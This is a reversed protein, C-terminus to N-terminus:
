VLASSQTVVAQMPSETVVLSRYRWTGHVRRRNLYTMGLGWLYVLFLGLPLAACIAYSPSAYDLFLLRFLLLPAYHGPLCLDDLPALADILFLDIGAAVQPISVFFDLQLHFKGPAVCVATLGHKAINGYTQYWNTWDFPKVPYLIAWNVVATFSCITWVLELFALMVRNRFCDPAHPHPHLYPMVLAAVGFYATTILHQLTTYYRTSTSGNMVADILWTVFFFLFAIVRFRTVKKNTFSLPDTSAWRIPRSWCSCCRKQSRGIPPKQKDGVLLPMAHQETMEPSLSLPLPPPLNPPPPNVQSPEEDDWESLLPIPPPLELVHSSSERQPSVAAPAATPMVAPAPVIVPAPAIPPVAQPAPAPALRAPPPAVPASRPTTDTHEPALDTSKTGQHREETPKPRAGAGGDSTPTKEEPPPTSRERPVAVPLPIRGSPESTNNWEEAIMYTVDCAASPVATSSTTTPPDREGALFQIWTARESLESCCFQFTAPTTEKPTKPFSSRIRFTFEKGSFDSVIEPEIQTPARLPIVIEAPITKPKDSKFLCLFGRQSILAWRKVWKTSFFGEHMVLLWGEKLPYSM